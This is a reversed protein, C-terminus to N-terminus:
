LETYVFTDFAAEWALYQTDVVSMGVFAGTFGFPKINEDCLYHVDLSYDTGFFDIGDFGYSFMGKAHTVELRLFVSKCNGLNIGKKGLPLIFEKNQLVMLNLVPGDTEDATMFFYYQNAEDYRYLLGAQHHFSTPTCTLTVTCAFDFCDQRHLIANQHHCSLLSEGGTLVIANGEVRYPCIYRLFLFDQLWTIEDFAYIKQKTKNAPESYAEFDKSMIQKGNRLYPWDDSWVVENISTERGLPCSMTEDLPRGSLTALWWRDGPGKCLSGHGTKQMAEDPCGKSTALYTNPHFVYPGTLSGSRAVSVSHDYGTGGEALILYYYGNRKFIQPGETYIDDTGTSIKIPDSIPL